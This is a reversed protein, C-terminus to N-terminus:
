RRFPPRRRPPFADEIHEFKTNKGKGGTIVGVFDFRWDHHDLHFRGLYHKAARTLHHKKEEGLLDFPSGYKDTSRTRVEVFVITNKDQAIIDIEGHPCQYNLARIRFRKRRLYKQALKEGAIGLKKKGETPKPQTSTRRLLAKLLRM